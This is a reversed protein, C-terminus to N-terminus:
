EQKKTDIIDEFTDNMDWRPSFEVNATIMTLEIKASTDDCEKAYKKILRKVDNRDFDITTVKEIDYYYKTQNGDVSNIRYGAGQAVSEFGKQMNMAKLVAIFAQKKSNMSIAADIDFDLNKKTSSIAESLVEKEKLVEVVLDIVDTVSFDVDYPKKTIIVEDDVEPNAAKKKHLEKTTTYFGVTTLYARGKEIIGELFNQYTFAEKLTM